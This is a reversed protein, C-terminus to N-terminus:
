DLLPNKGDKAMTSAGYNGYNFRWLSAFFVFFSRIEPIQISQLEM